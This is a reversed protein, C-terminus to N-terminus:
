YFISNNAPAPTAWHLTQSRVPRDPNSELCPCLYKKTWVPEPGWGAEQVIPVPPEKRPPLARGPRSASWEGGELASTLFSRSSYEEGRGRGLAVMAHVTSMNVKSANTYLSEKKYIQKATFIADIFSTSKCFGCQEKQLIREVTDSSQIQTIKYAM